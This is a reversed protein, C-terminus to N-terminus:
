AAPDRASEHPRELLCARHASWAASREGGPESWRADLRVLEAAGGDVPEGCFCCRGPGGGRRSTDVPLTLERGDPLRLGIARGSRQEPPRERRQAM